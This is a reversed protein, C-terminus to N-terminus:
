QWIIENDGYADDVIKMSRIAVEVAVKGVDEKSLSVPFDYQACVAGKDDMTFKLCEYTRSLENM